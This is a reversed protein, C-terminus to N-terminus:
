TGDRNKITDTNKRRIDVRINRQISVEGGEKNILM